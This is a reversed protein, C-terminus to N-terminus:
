QNLKIFITIILLILPKNIVKTIIIIIIRVEILIAIEMSLMSEM